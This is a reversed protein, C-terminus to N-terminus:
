KIGKSNKVSLFVNKASFTVLNNFFYEIPM